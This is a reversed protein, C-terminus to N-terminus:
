GRVRSRAVVDCAVGRLLTLWCGRPDTGPRRVRYRLQQAHDPSHAGARVADVVQIHQARAPHWDQEVPDVRGGRQARQQPLEGETMGTLELRHQALVQDREGPAGIHQGPQSWCANM